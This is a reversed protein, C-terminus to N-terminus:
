PPKRPPSVHYHWMFLIIYYQDQSQSLKLMKDNRGDPKRLKNKNNDDDDDDAAANNNNNNDNNNNINQLM